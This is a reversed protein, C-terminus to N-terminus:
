TSTHVQFVWMELCKQRESFDADTGNSLAFNPIGPVENAIRWGEVGIQRESAIIGLGCCGIALECPRVCSDNTNEALHSSIIDGWNTEIVTLFATRM